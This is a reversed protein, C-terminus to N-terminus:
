QESGSVGYVVEGDFLGTLGDQTDNGNNNAPIEVVVNYDQKSTETMISIQAEVVGNKTTFKCPIYDIFQGPEVSVQQSQVGDGQVIIQAPIEGNQFSVRLGSDDLTMFGDYKVIDKDTGHKIITGALKVDKPQFFLLYVLVGAVALILVILFILLPVFNTKKHCEIISGDDMEVYGLIKGKPPEDVLEGGRAYSDVPHRTTAKLPYSEGYIKYEKM